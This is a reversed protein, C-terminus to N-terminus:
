RHISIDEFVPPSKKPPTRIPFDTMQKEYGVGLVRARAFSETGACLTLHHEGLHIEM